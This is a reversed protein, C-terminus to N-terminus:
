ALILPATDELLPQSLVHTGLAGCQPGHPREGEAVWWSVPVHSPCARRRAEPAEMWVKRESDPPGM